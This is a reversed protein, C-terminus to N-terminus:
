RQALGILRPCVEGRNLAVEFENHGLERADRGAGIAEVNKM